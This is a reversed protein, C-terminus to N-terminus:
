KRDYLSKFKSYIKQLFFFDGSEDALKDFKTKEARERDEPRVYFLNASSVVMCLIRIVEDVLNIQMLIGIENDSM